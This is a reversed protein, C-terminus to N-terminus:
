AENPQRAEKTFLNTQKLPKDDAMKTKKLKPFSFDIRKPEEPQHYYLSLVDRYTSFLMNMLYNINENKPNGFKSLLEYALHVQNYEIMARVIKILM